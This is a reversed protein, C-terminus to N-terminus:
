PFRYQSFLDIVVKRFNLIFFVLIFLQSSFIWATVIDLRVDDNDEKIQLDQATSDDDLLRGLDEGNDIADQDETAETAITTKKFLTVYASAM